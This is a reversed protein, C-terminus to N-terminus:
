DRVSAHPVPRNRARWKICISDLVQSGTKQVQSGTKQIESGEQNKNNNRKCSGEVVSCSDSEEARSTLSCDQGSGEKDPKVGTSSALKEEDTALGRRDARPKGQLGSAKQPPQCPQLKCSNTNVANAKRTTHGKGEPDFTARPLNGNIFDPDDDGHSSWGRTQTPARRTRPPPPRTTWRRRTRGATRPLCPWPPPDPTTSVDDKDLGEDGPAGTVASWTWKAWQVPSLWSM